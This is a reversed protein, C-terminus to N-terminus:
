RQPRNDGIHQDPFSRWVLQNGALAAPVIRKRTEDLLHQLGDFYHWTATYVAFDEQAADRAATLSEQISNLEALCRALPPLPDPTEPTV